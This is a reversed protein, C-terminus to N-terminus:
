ARYRSTCCFSRVRGNVFRCKHREHRNLKTPLFVLEGALVAVVAGGAGSDPSEGWEFAFAEHSPGVMPGSFADVSWDRVRVSVSHAAVSDYCGDRFPYSLLEWSVECRCETGSMCVSDCSDSNQPPFM